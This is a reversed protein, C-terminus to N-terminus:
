KEIEEPQLFYIEILKNIDHFYDKLNSEDYTNNICEFFDNYVKGHQTENVITKLSFLTESLHYAIDYDQGGEWKREQQFQSLINYYQILARLLSVFRDKPFINTFVLALQMAEVTIDLINKYAELENAWGFYSWSVITLELAFKKYEEETAHLMMHRLLAKQDLRFSRVYDRMKPECQPNARLLQYTVICRREYNQIVSQVTCRLMQPELLIQDIPEMFNNIIKNWNNPTLDLITFLLNLIMTGHDLLNNVSNRSYRPSCKRLMSMKKTLEVILQVYNTKHTCIKKNLVFYM